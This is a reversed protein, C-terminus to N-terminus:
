HAADREEVRHEVHDVREPIREGATAVHGDCERDSDNRAKRDDRQADRQAHRRGTVFKASSLSRRHKPPRANRFPVTMFRLIANTKRDTKSAEGAIAASRDSAIVISPRGTERFPVTATNRRLTAYASRMSSTREYPPTTEIEGAPADTVTRERLAVNTEPLALTLTSLVSSEMGSRANVALPVRKTGRWYKTVRMTPPVTRISARAAVARIASAGSARGWDV